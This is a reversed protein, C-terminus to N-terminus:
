FKLDEAISLVTRNHDNIQAAKREGQHKQEELLKAEKKNAEEVCLLLTERHYDRVEEITTGDLIIKDGFVSTIGRRHMTTFRPPDNWEQVFLEVWLHSPRKSLRFPIKYLASGRTGDLRPMTVEDTIIGLIRIPGEDNSSQSVRYAPVQNGVYDPRKGIPPKRKGGFITTVLDKYNDDYSHQESLDVGLKGELFIPISTIRDGKRIVPIFKKENHRSFLEGSIIHGEYGVGGKRADAKAKYTPTCIILVYDANTIQQEMFHPLRDGLTLDYQDLSVDIGDNLLTDALEKVWSKHQDDEWSYSIFVKPTRSESRDM